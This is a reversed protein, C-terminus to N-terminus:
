VDNFISTQNIKMKFLYYFSGNKCNLKFEALMGLIIFILDSLDFIIM